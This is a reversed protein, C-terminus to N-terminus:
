SEDDEGKKLEDIMPIIPLPCDEPFDILRTNGEPLRNNCSKPPRSFFCTAESYHPCKVPHEIVAIRKRM